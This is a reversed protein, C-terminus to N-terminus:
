RVRAGLAREITQALENALQQVLRKQRGEVMVRVLPETGSFRILIRGQGGLQREARKLQGLYGPIEALERRRAVPVNVLVQPWLEMCASLEALSRGSQQMLALVQLATILGDGTTNYDLFIVHGSSEGGFNFGGSLM